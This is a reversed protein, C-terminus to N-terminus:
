VDNEMNNKKAFKNRKTYEPKFKNTILPYVYDSLKKLEGLFQKSYGSTSVFCDVMGSLYKSLTDEDFPITIVQIKDKDFLERMYSMEPNNYCSMGGIIAKTSLGRVKMSKNVVAKLKSPILKNSSQLDRLFATLPQITLIDMSQVLYIEQALEFYTNPTKFDCDLLVLSYQKILNAIVADIDVVDIKQNPVSTFVTLNKSVEIGEVIGTEVKELCNSAIRRLQEENKTYIYYSNRNETLDVIATKIGTRSLMDAINNVLFSTGAKSTGVFAVIKKDKTLLRTLDISENQPQVNEIRREEKNEEVLNFLNIPEEQQKSQVPEIEPLIPEQVEEDFGPLINEQGEMPEESEIVKKPRGRKKPIKIEETGPEVIKKPRGRKKKVPEEDTDNEELEVVKKPRGRTATVINEVQPEEYMEETDEVIQQEIEQNTIEQHTTELNQTEKKNLKKVSETNVASPIVVPKTPRTKTEKTEIFGIKLDDKKEVEKKSVKKYTGEGFTMISQYKPSEVELVARVGIPLFKSIIRLQSDTYQSAINNFSEVYRETNKGLKKYHTLINQLETESVSDESEAQYNVEETEIKYYTKAEKKTRPKNLLKCVEPMSRDPGLLADYVGISFLKSLLNDSKSRRDTAIFIIPIDTGGDSIAEDSIKDLQEFLFKDIIDFNNNTYPELDESIVIRDYTQDRQLEKIIANFYYVNKGSIIERYEKQYLKIISESVDENNVAFLVKM